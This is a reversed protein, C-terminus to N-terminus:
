ACRWVQPRVYGACLLDPLAHLEVRGVQVGRAMRGRAHLVMLRHGVRVFVGVHPGDIARVLLVDGPEPDADTPAWGADRCALAAAAGSLPPVDRGWVDRQVACVLGKCDYAEPGCADARWPRGIYASLADM